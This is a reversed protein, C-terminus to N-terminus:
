NNRFACKTDIKWTKFAETYEANNAAFNQFINFLQSFQNSIPQNQIEYLNQTLINPQLEDSPSFKLPSSKKIYGVDM